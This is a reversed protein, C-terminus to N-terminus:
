PSTCASLSSNKFKKGHSIFGLHETDGNTVYYRTESWGQTNPNDYAEAYINIHTYGPGTGSTPVTVYMCTHSNSNGIDEYYTGYNFRTYRHTKACVYPTPSTNVLFANIHDLLDQSTIPNGRTKGKEDEDALVPIAMIMLILLVFVSILFSLRKM